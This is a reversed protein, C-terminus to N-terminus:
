ESQEGALVKLCWNYAWLVGDWYGQMNPDPTPHAVHDDRADHIRGEGILTKVMTVVRKERLRLEHEGLVGFSRQRDAVKKVPGHGTAAELRDMWGEFVGSRHASTEADGALERIANELDDWKKAVHVGANWKPYHGRLDMLAAKADTM